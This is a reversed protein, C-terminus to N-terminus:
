RGGLRKKMEELKNKVSEAKVEKTEREKKEILKENEDDIQKLLSSVNEVRTKRVLKILRCDVCEFPCVVALTDVGKNNLNHVEFRKLKKNFYIKYGKDIEQLRREIQFVDGFEVLYEKM